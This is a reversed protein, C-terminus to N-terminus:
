NHLACLTAKGIKHKYSYQVSPKQKISSWLISHGASEAFNQNNCLGNWYNNIIEIYSINMWSSGAHSAFQASNTCIHLFTFPPRTNTQRERHGQSPTVLPHFRATAVVRPAPPLPNLLDTISSFLCKKVVHEGELVGDLIPEIGLVTLPHLWKLVVLFLLHPWNVLHPYLLEVFSRNDKWVASFTEWSCMVICAWTQSSLTAWDNHRTLPSTLPARPFPLLSTASAAGAPCRLDTKKLMSSCLTLALLNTNWNFLLCVPRHCLPLLCPPLKNM